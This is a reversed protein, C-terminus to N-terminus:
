SVRRSLLLVGACICLVGLLKKRTVPENLFIRSICLTWIYTIATAPYLVSYDVYQLLVINILAGAAYFIGGLYIQPIRLLSLIGNANESVRKFFFAGCAGFLTMMGTLLVVKM